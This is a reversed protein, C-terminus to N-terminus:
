YEALGDKFAVHTFIAPGNDVNDDLILVPKRTDNLEYTQTLIAQNRGQVVILQDLAQNQMQLMCQQMNDSQKQLDHNRYLSAQLASFCQEFDSHILDAQKMQGSELEKFYDEFIAALHQFKGKMTPSASTTQLVDTNQSTIQRYLTASFHQGTQRPTDPRVNSPKSGSTAATFTSTAKQTTGPAELTLLDSVLDVGHLSSGALTVLDSTEDLMYDRPVRVGDLDVKQFREGSKFLITIANAAALSPCVSSKSQEITTLLIKKFRVDLRAREELFQMLAPEKFLNVMSIIGNTASTRSQDLRTKRKSRANNRRRQSDDGDGNSGGNGAGSDGRDGIPNHTSGSSDGNGGSSNDGGSSSEGRDSPNGEGGSTGGYGRTFNEGDDVMGDGDDHFSSGGGGHSDGGGDGSNDDDDGDPDGKNSVDPDFVSLSAFYDLLSQHIFWHQIGARTLPSAERLLTPDIDPGFFEMKWSGKDKRHTYEVVPRREHLVYIAEALRKSYDWVCWEFGAELLEDYVGQVEQCLSAGDLRRQSLQIWEKIFGRYLDQKAAELQTQDLGNTSLFPLAKLALTLLFPNKVLNMLNPIVKLKELYVDQRPVPVNGLFSAVAPDMVYQAVFEQIDSESFPVITAEEFLHHTNDHYRDSGQPHFRGKYGHSLFTNRCSIVMKADLRNLGNTTHLNKTLRSEDYGDCILVVQRHQKLDQVMHAPIDNHDRLHKGILDNDPRDISPLNILLPIRRGVEYQEWLVRELQRCFLSKGSGSDGLLLFVQRDSELFEKVKQMLPFDGDSSTLFAKARLPIFVPLLREQLRQFKMRHLDYEVESSNLVRNLLPFSTPPALCTHLPHDAEIDALEEEQLNALLSRAHESIDPWSIKSVRSLISVVCKQIKINRKGGAQVRWFAGLFDIASQRSATDLLQNAAIEGLLQCVGYQFNIDFCCDADCVLKNFEILRGQRVFVYATQLTLFWSEKKNPWYVRGGAQASGEATAQLAHAGDIDLKVFNSANGTVQELRKVAVLANAPDLKFVGAAASVGVAISEAHRLFAQWSTEDDPLYLLTQHAYDVHFKLFMDDKVGRLGRLVELLSEHDRQRNLDKIKGTVMVELVKSVASVLQYVHARSPTHTSELRMRLSALIRVLYDDELYGSSASQVLQVMGQLIEVSFLPMQDFRQIFYSLLTRHDDQCLVPGLIVVESITAIDKVEAKIFEAVLKSVLGRVHTQASLDEQMASLWARGSEDLISTEAFGSESTDILPDKHLLSICFALQLTSEFRTRHNAPTTSRPTPAPVDTSFIRERLYTTIPFPLPPKDNARTPHIDGQSLGHPDITSQRHEPTQIVPSIPSVLRDTAASYIAPKTFDEFSPTVASDCKKSKSKTLKPAKQLIVSFRGSDSSYRQDTENEDEPLLRTASTTSRHVKRHFSTPVFLSTVPLIAQTAPDGLPPEM